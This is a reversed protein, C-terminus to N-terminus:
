ASDEKARYVEKAEYIVIVQDAERGDGERIHYDRLVDIGRQWKAAENADKTFLVPLSETPSIILMEVYLTPNSSM